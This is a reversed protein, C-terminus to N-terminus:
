RGRRSRGRVSGPGTLAQPAWPASHESQKRVRFRLLTVAGSQRSSVPELDV